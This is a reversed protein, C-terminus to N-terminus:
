SWFSRNTKALCSTRWEKFICFAWVNRVRSQEKRAMCRYVHTPSTPLPRAPICLLWLLLYWVPMNAYYWAWIVSTKWGLGSKGSQAVRTDVLVHQKVAYRIEGEQLRIKATASRGRPQTTEINTVHQQSQWCSQKQLVHHGVGHANCGNGAQM